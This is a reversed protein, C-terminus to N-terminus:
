ERLSALTRGNFAHALNAAREAYDHAVAPARGLVVAEVGGNWALAINYSSAPLGASVLRTKIWEYHIVAVDDSVKRELARAFPISTHMRWTTPRFQYAGLEGFRGPTTVNRPNELQHIAELTAWRSPGQAAEASAVGGCVFVALIFATSSFNKQLANV